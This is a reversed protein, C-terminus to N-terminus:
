RKNKNIIELLDHPLPSSVKILKGTVPHEFELCWCHLAHRSQPGPTGYLNDGFLPCGIYASHIRIQHTRGTFLIFQALCLESSYQVLLQYDTRAFKGTTNDVMREIISGPKRAIPAEIIGQKSPLIGKLMALYKKNINGSSLKHQIFPKKAFIVLGSTNRDLRFIPHIGAAINHEAYYGALYNSVTDSASNVTPHVLMGAPKDVIILEKDEYIIKLPGKEPLVSSVPVPMSFSVIDGTKLKHSISAPLGNIMITGNNKIKRWNTLSIGQQALFNRVSCHKTDESVLFTDMDINLRLHTLLKM